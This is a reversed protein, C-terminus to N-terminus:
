SGRAPRIAHLRLQLIRSGSFDNIQPVFCLDVGEARALWDAERAMGFGICEQTGQEAALWMKLHQNDRGVVTWDAVKAGFAAFRPEPNGNGFPEMAELESVLEQTVESLRVAMDIELCPRLTSPDLEKRGVHNLAQRFEELRDARVAAGVAMAHGGYRVLLDQCQDLAGALNFGPISRGSGRCTDGEMALLIVPRGYQAVIQSAAIGVVGIHWSESALVICATEGLDVEREVMVRAQDCIASQEQQRQRNIGDLYLATRNAEDQDDTLLLSLSPHADALRGAANIRPGIRFAIHESRPCGNVQCLNMLTRLGLKKTRALRALGLSALARNEAVLPVVDAITGVAALDLFAREVYQRPVGRSAATARALQLALGAAALERNPYASTELKPDVLADACPLTPGPEHHDLVILKLGLERARACAEIDRVGCDVAIVLSIGEAAAKEVAEASLGYHDHVRHPIFYQVNVGLKSLFRVLLATATLGDVDYDGHVLVTARQDIAENVLAVARDIDPLSSPDCLDAILPSLYAQAEQPTAIGRNLLLAAAVRSVGTAEALAAEAAPERPQVRWVAREQERSAQYSM